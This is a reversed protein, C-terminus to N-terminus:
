QETVSSFSVLRVGQEIIEHVVDSDTVLGYDLTRHMAYGESDGSDRKNPGPHFVLESIGHPISRICELLQMKLDNKDCGAYRLRLMYDPTCVGSRNLVIHNYYRMGAKMWEVYRKRGCGHLKHTSRTGKEWPYLRHTRAGNIGYKHCLQIIVERVIPRKQIGHHSDCHTPRLGHDCLLSCQTSLERYVQERIHQGLWLNRNQKQVPLFMGMENVLNPVAASGVLPSGETLNFHIGVGLSRCQRALEIAYIAAPMNAMLTTSSVIGHKHAAVIADSIAAGFGFDDANCILKKEHM